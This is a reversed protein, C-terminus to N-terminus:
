IEWVDTTDNVYAHNVSFSAFPASRSAVKGLLNNQKDAEAKIIDIEPAGRGNYVRDTFPGRHNRYSHALTLLHFHAAPRLSSM